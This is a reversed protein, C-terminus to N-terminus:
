LIRTPPSQFWPKKHSEMWNPITVGVSSSMNELPTPIGGVLFQKKKGMVFELKACPHNIANHIRIDYQIYSCPGGCGGEGGALHNGGGGKAPSPPNEWCSALGYTDIILISISYTIYLTHTTYIHIYIRVYIIHLIYISYICYIYYKVCIYMYQVYIYIYQIHPNQYFISLIHWM